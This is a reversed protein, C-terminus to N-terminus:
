PPMPVVSAPSKMCIGGTRLDLIDLGPWYASWAQGLIDLDLVCRLCIWILIDVIDSSDVFDFM